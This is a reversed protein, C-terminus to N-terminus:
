KKPVPATQPHQAQQQQLFLQRKREMDAAEQRDEEDEEILTDPKYGKISYLNTTKDKDKFLIDATLLRIVTKRAKKLIPFKYTFPPQYTIAPPIDSRGCTLVFNMASTGPLGLFDAGSVLLMLSTLFFIPGWFLHVYGAQRTKILNKASPPTHVFIPTVFITIPHFLWHVKEIGGWYNVKGLFSAQIFKWGFSIGLVILFLGFLVHGISQLMTANFMDTM